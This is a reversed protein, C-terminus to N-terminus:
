SFFSLLLTHLRGIADVKKSPNSVAQGMEYWLGEGHDIYKGPKNPLKEKAKEPNYDPLYVAQLLPMLEEWELSRVEKRGNQEKTVKLSRHSFKPDVRITQTTKKDKVVYRIELPREKQGLEYIAQIVEQIFYEWNEANEPIGEQPDSEDYKVLLEILNQSDPAQKTRLTNTQALMDILAPKWAKPLKGKWTFDDELTFGEELIEEESLQERETYNIQFDIQLGAPNFDIQLRYEHSYPPPAVLTAFKIELQKIRNKILSM